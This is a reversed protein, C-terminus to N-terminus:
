LRKAVAVTVNGDQFRHCHLQVPQLETCCYALVGDPYYYSMQPRRERLTDSIFNFFLTNHISNYANKLATEITHKSNLFRTNFLGSIFAVDFIEQYPGSMIDFNHVEWDPHVQRVAQVLTHTLDIGCYRGRWGHSELFPKLDALGCGVDLVSESQSLPKILLQDFRQHQLERTPWLVASPSHGFSTYASAYLKELRARDCNFYGM